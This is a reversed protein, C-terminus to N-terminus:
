ETYKVNANYAWFLMIFLYFINKDSSQNVAFFLLFYPFLTSFAVANFGITKEWKTKLRKTFSRILLAIYGMTEPIMGVLGYYYLLSLYQVELSKKTNSWSYIGNTVTRTYEFTDQLNHGFLWSKDANMTEFVWDYLELRNGTASVEGGVSFISSALPAYKDDFVALIMYFFMKIFEGIQPVIVSLLGGLVLIILITRTLVKLLKKLGSFYLLLLQSLIAFIIASRSFTLILNIWLLAYIVKVKRCKVKNANFNQLYYFCLSLCFMIYAGYVIAHSSYSIIRTMGFRESNYNLTAGTTNLLSFINFGTIEEVIGFIALMGSVNIIVNIIRIFYEKNTIHTVVVCGVIVSSLPFYLAQLIGNNVMLSISKCTMWIFFIINFCNLHLKFSPIRGRHIIFMTLVFILSLLNTGGVGLISFYSPIIPFIAVFFLMLNYTRIEYRM